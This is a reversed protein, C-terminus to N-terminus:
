GAARSGETEIEPSIQGIEPATQDTILWLAYKKFRPHNTVKLINQESLTRVGTEYKKLSNASIDVLQSFEQGTLGESKRIIRLKKGIM